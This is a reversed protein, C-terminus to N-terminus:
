SSLVRARRFQSPTQGTWRKFATSFTSLDRYGQLYAIETIPLATKSILNRALAERYADAVDSFTKGEESLRRSLTRSSMGLAKAIAAHSVDGGTLRTSLQKEILVILSSTQPALKDLAEECCKQVLKFLYGDASKLPLELDGPRFRFRNADAGFTVPCGFFREMEPIGEARVHRFELSLPKYNRETLCRMERIHGSAGFEVIQRRDIAFPVDFHWELVGEDLLRSTDIQMADSFVQRYRAVNELFSGMTPSSLGVFAILGLRRIERTQGSRFGYLQDQMLVAAREFLQALEDFALRPEEADFDSLKLGSNGFIQAGSFGARRLDEVIQKGYIATHFPYQNREQRSM